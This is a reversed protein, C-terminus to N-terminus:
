IIEQQPVAAASNRKRIVFVLLVIAFVSFIVTTVVSGEIGFDGGAFLDEGLLPVTFLSLTRTGSVNSGLLCGSAFNWFFHMGSVIWINETLLFLLSAVLGFAFINVMSIVTAGPNSLHLAMFVVSNLIIAVPINSAAALGNMFYGRMLFEESSSQVLFGFFFLILLYDFGNFMISGTYGGVFLILYAVLLPILGLLMGILLNKFANKKVIGISSYPRKKIRRCIFLVGIITVACSFLMTITVSPKSVIASTIETVADLFEEGSFIASFLNSTLEYFVPIFTIIGKIAELVVFLVIFTLIEVWINESKENKTESIMNIQM